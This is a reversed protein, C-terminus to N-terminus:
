YGVLRGLGAPERAVVDSQHHTRDLIVGDHM